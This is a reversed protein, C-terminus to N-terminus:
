RAQSQKVSDLIDFEYPICPLTVLSIAKSAIRYVYFLMLEPLAIVPNTRPWNLFSASDWM